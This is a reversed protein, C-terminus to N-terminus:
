CDDYGIIVHYDDTASGRGRVTARQDYIHGESSGRCENVIDDIYAALDSCKTHTCSANDNCLWLAAHGSRSIRSCVGPGSEVSCTGRVHILNNRIQWVQSLPAGRANAGDVDCVVDTTEALKSVALYQDQPTWNFPPDMAEIQVAVDEITGHLTIEPSGEEVTGRWIMPKIYYGDLLVSCVQPTHNHQHHRYHRHYQRHQHKHTRVATVAAVCAVFVALCKM